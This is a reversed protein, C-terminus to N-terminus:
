RMLGASRLDRVVSSLAPERLAERRVGIQLLWGLISEVVPDAAVVGGREAYADNRTAYRMFHHDLGPVVKLTAAGARQRNVIDAILAVADRSEFWDYEGYLVLVPGRVRAWAGAWNQRQAQQHFALARGYQTDGSTGVLRSWVKGLEPDRSAIAAPTQGELLYRTLFAARANIEAALRAPDTEGLDLASREFRLTREYWTTAGGGWVAVGAVDQDAAILPAMNSGMSAGFIVVRRPDVDPRALLQRLALRHHALETEYDLSSCAPGQSDGVGAKDIRQWLMGSRTILERLMTSWGDRADAKLEITDCSLWQVFLVAPLRGSTGTPRTVITRLRVGDAARLVGYETDIGPLSELPRNDVRPLDGLMRTACDVPPPASVLLILLLAGHALRAPLTV